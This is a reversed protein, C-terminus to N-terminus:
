GVSATAVPLGQLAGQGQAEVRGVAVDVGERAANHLAERLAKVSEYRLTVYMESARQTVELWVREIRLLFWRYPRMRLWLTWGVYLDNGEEFCSVYGAFIGQRIELYDRTVGGPISLRRVGVSDVPTSRRRFAHTVHEFVVPRAAAKGDVLFKWESLQVPVPVLLFAAIFVALVVIWLGVVPALGGILGGASPSSSGLGTLANNEASQLGKFALYAYVPTLIFSVVAYIAYLIVAQRAMSFLYRNNSLPDFSGEPTQEFLLRKGLYVPNAAAQGVAADAPIGGALFRGVSFSGRAPENIATM